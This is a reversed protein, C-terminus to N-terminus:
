RIGVLTANFVGVGNIFSSNSPLSAQGDDSTFHVTGSYGTATQNSQDLATITISFSTGSTAVAPASVVLHTALAAAITFTQPVDPAANYNADGGQSATITCSGIGTLHVTNSNLTCSGSAAFGVALGSSATASVSFDADGLNKNTLANFAITQDAKGITVPLSTVPAGILNGASAIPTVEFTLSQGVDGAAATYTAATAGGIAMGNRLWRFTSAGQADSELDSYTYHGTLLSNFIPMGSISVASAIPASNPIFISSSVPDGPSTGTQAVPTVEFAISHAADAVVTTYTQSM